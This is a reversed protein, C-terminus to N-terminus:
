KAAFGREVGGVVVALGAEREVAKRTRRRRGDGKGILGTEGELGREVVGRLGEVIKEKGARLGRAAVGGRALVNRVLTELGNALSRFFLVPLTPTDLDALVFSLLTLEEEGDQSRSPDSNIGITDNVGDDTGNPLSPYETSISLEKLPIDALIEEFEIIGKIKGVIEALSRDLAPPSPTSPTLSSFVRSLAALSSTTQNSLFVTLTSVLFNSPPKKSSTRQPAPPSLIYLIQFSSSTRSLLQELAKQTAFTSSSTTHNSPSTPTSPLSFNSLQTQATSKLFLETPQLLHSMITQVIALQTLDGGVSGNPSGRFRSDLMRKLEVVTFSARLLPKYDEELGNSGTSTAQGKRSSFFEGVQVELQRGLLVVRSVKRLITTVAHLRGVAQLVEEANEARGLIEKELRKYSGNLLKLQEEIGAVLGRSIDRSEKAYTLLPIASSSTINHIHSDIEQLDFLVRSLPTSLDLNPDNSTNTHLILANAFSHPSFGPALFTEYDIYADTPPSDTM